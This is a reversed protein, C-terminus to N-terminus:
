KSEGLYKDFWKVAENSNVCRWGEDMDFIPFKKRMEDIITEFDAIFYTIQEPSVMSFQENMRDVTAKMEEIKTELKGKM